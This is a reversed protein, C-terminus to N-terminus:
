RKPTIVGVRSVIEIADVPSAESGASATVTFTTGKGRSLKIFGGENLADLPSKPRRGRKIMRVIKPVTVVEGNLAYKSLSLGSMSHLYVDYGAKAMEAPLGAVRVRSTERKGKRLSKV